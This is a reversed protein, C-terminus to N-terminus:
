PCLLVEPYISFYGSLWRLEAAIRKSFELSKLFFLFFVQWYFDLPYDSSHFQTEMFNVDSPLFVGGRGWSHLLVAAALEGKILGKEQLAQLPPRKMILKKLRTKM